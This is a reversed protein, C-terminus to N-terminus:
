LCDQFFICLMQCIDCLQDLNKLGITIGCRIEPCINGDPVELVPAYGVACKKNLPPCMSVDCDIDRFLTLSSKFFFSSFSVVIRFCFWNFFFLLLSIKSIIRCVQKSCCPDSPDTVNVLMFGPETCNETMVDPCKKPKCIVSSSAKDCVCDECNYEFHEDFQLLFLCLFIYSLM